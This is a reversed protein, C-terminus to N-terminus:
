LRSNVAPCAAKHQDDNVTLQGNNDIFINGEVFLLKGSIVQNEANVKLGFYATSFTNLAPVQSFM